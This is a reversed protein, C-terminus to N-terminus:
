SGDAIAKHFVSELLPRDCLRPLLFLLFVSVRQECSFHLWLSLQGRLKLQLAGANKMLFPELFHEFLMGRAAVAEQLDEDWLSGVGEFLLRKDETGVAVLKHNIRRQVERNDEGSLVSQNLLAAVQRLLPLPLLELKCGVARYWEALAQLDADPVPGERAQMFTARVEQFGETANWHELLEGQVSHALQMREGQQKMLAASVDEANRFSSPLADKGTSLYAPLAFYGIVPLSGFFAVPVLKQYDDSTRQLHKEESFSLAEGRKQKEKIQTAVKSNRAMTTVADGVQDLTGAQKGKLHVFVIRLPRKVHQAIQKLVGNFTPAAVDAGISRVRLGKLQVGCSLLDAHQVDSVTTHQRPCGHVDFGNYLEKLNIGLKGPAYWAVEIRDTTKTM